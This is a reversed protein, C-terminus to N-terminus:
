ELNTLNQNTTLFNSSNTPQAYISTSLKTCFSILNNNPIVSTSIMVNTECRKKKDITVSPIKTSTTIMHAIKESRVRIEVKKRIVVEKPKRGRKPSFIGIKTINEGKKKNTSMYEVKFKHQQKYKEHRKKIPGKCPKINELTGHCCKRMDPYNGLIKGNFIDHAFDIPFIFEGMKLLVDDIIELPHSITLGVKKFISYPILNIIACLDCLAKEFYLNGMICLITFCGPNKLKPPFMKLVVAFCEDTLNVVEFGKLKKKNSM